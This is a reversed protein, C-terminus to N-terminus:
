LEEGRVGAGTRDKGGAVSSEVSIGAVRLYLCILMDFCSTTSMGTQAFTGSRCHDMRSVCVVVEAPGFQGDGAM